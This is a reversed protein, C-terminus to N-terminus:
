FIDYAMEFGGDYLSQTWGAYGLPRGGKGDATPDLALWSGDDRKAEVYVHDFGEPTTAQAVFRSTIGISALMTSLLVSKSVCDGSRLMLTRRADQVVQMNWPHDIYSIHDRTFEYLAVACDAADGCIEAAALATTGDRYSRYEPPLGTTVAQAM